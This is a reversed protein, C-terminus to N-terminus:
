LALILTADLQPPGFDNSTDSAKVSFAVLTVRWDLTELGRVFHLLNMFSTRITMKQWPRPYVENFVEHAVPASFKALPDLRWEKSADDDDDDDSDGGSPGKAFMGRSEEDPVTQVITVESEQALTSIQIKLDQLANPDKIPVLAAEAAKLKEQTTALETQLTEFDQKLEAVSRGRADPFKLNERGKIAETVEKQLELVAQNAPKWRFAGYLVLVIVAFATPLMLKERESLGATKM